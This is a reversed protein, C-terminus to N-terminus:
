VATCAAQTNLAWFGRGRANCGGGVKVTCASVTHPGNTGYGANIEYNYYTLGDDRRESTASVIDEEDLYTGPPHHDTTPTDHTPHPHLPNLPQPPHPTLTPHAVHSGKARCQARLLERRAGLAGEACGWHM